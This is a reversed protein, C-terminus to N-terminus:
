EHKSIAACIAATRHVAAGVNCVQTGNSEYYASFLCAAAESENILRVCEKDQPIDCKLSSKSYMKKEDTVGNEDADENGGEEDAASMGARPPRRQPHPETTLSSKLMWALAARVGRACINTPPLSSPATWGTLRHVFQATEEPAPHTLSVVHAECEYLKAFLRSIIRGDLLSRDITVFMKVRNRVAPRVRRVAELARLLAQFCNKDEKLKTHLNDALVIEEMDDASMYVNVGIAKRLSVDGDDWRSVHCRTRAFALSCCLTKGSDAPGEVCVCPVKRDRILEEIRRCAHQPALGALVGGDSAGAAQAAGGGLFLSARVRASDSNNDDGQQGDYIMDIEASAASTIVVCV